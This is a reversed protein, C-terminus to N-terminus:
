SYKDYTNSQTILVRIITTYMCDYSVLITICALVHKILLLFVVHVCLITMIIVSVLLIRYYIIRRLIYYIYYVIGCVSLM